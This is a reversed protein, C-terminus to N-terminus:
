ETVVVATTAGRPTITLTHGDEFTHVTQVPQPPQVGPIEPGAGPGPAFGYYPEVIPKGDLVRLYRGSLPDLFLGAGRSILAPPRLTFVDIYPGYAGYAYARHANPGYGYPGYAFAVQSIASVALFALLKTM